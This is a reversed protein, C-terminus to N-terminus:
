LIIVNCYTAVSKQVTEKLKEVGVNRYDARLKTM